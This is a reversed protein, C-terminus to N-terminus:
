LGDDPVRGCVKVFAGRITQRKLGRDFEGHGDERV